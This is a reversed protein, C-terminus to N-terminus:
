GDDADQSLLEFAQAVFRGDEVHGTVRAHRVVACFGDDAHADGFDDIGFGDVFYAKGDIRVALDCGGGELDFNCQGCSAEVVEDVLAVRATAEQASSEVNDSVPEECGAALLASLLILCPGVIRKRRHRM